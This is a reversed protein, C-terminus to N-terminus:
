RGLTSNSTLRYISMMTMELRPKSEREDRLNM